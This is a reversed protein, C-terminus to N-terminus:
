QTTEKRVPPILQLVSAFSFSFIGVRTDIRVGFDGTFDIPLNKGDLHEISSLAFFGARIFANIGYIIGSGRYIPRSYETNFSLVLDEYWMDTIATDLLQPHLNSFNLGLKRDPVFAFFDGVFFQDFFPANGTILGAMGGVCISQGKKGFPIHTKHKVQFKAFDYDSGLAPHSLEASFRTLSGEFPLVPHNTTDRTFGFMFSSLVSADPQVYGISVPPENLLPERTGVLTRPEEVLINEFRVDFWFFYDLLLNYGTGLRIGARRYNIIEYTGFTSEEDPAPLFHEGFYEQAEAFVGEVHVGFRSNLFHNDRLYIRYASQNKSAAVTGGLQIGTGLLSGEEIGLSGFPVVENLHPAIRTVGISLDRVVITNREKVTIELFVYGRATGKKLEFSVESFLGGALMRYRAEELRGNEVSFFDGPRIPIYRLVVSRLTKHNGIIRIKELHYHVEPNGALIKQSYEPESDTVDQWQVNEDETKENEDIKEVMHQAMACPSISWVIGLIWFYQNLKM